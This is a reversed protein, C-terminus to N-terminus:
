AADVVRPQEQVGPIAPDLAPSHAGYRAAAHTIQTFTMTPAQDVTGSLDAHEFSREARTDM